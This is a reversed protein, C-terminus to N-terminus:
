SYSPLANNLRDHSLSLARGTCGMGSLSNLAHFFTPHNYYHWYRYSIMVGRKRLLKLLADDVTNVQLYM